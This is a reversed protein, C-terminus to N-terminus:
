LNAHFGGNYIPNFPFTGDKPTTIEKGFFSVIFSVGAIELMKLSHSSVNFQGLRPDRPEDEHACADAIKESQRVRSIPPLKQARDM